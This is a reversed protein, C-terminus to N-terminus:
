KNLEAIVNACVSKFKETYGRKKLGEFTAKREGYLEEPHEEFYQEIKQYKLWDIFHLGLLSNLWLPTDANIVIEKGNDMLENFRKGVNKFEEAFEKNSIKGDVFKALLDKATNELDTFRTTKEKRFIGFLNSIFDFSM